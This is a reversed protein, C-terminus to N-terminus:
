ATWWASHAPTSILRPNPRTYHLTPPLQNHHLALVTKILGTVGSAAELHGVNPKM